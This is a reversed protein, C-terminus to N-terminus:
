NTSNYEIKSIIKDKIDALNHASLMKFAEDRLKGWQNHVPCPTEKSCGKFGLVCQSFVDTGDIAEVIDILFIEVPRKKLFFGGNKGKRSGVIGKQTLEQLIKSLFEKPAGLLSSIAGANAFVGNSLTSLYLVAQLGIECKKSFLVTMEKKRFCNQLSLSNKPFIVSGRKQDKKIM